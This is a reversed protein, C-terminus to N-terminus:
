PSPASVTVVPVVPADSDRKRGRIDGTEAPVDIDILTADRTGHDPIHSVEEEADTVLDTPLRVLSLCIFSIVVSGVSVFFIAKPFTAVTKIFILGYISPGLIQASRISNGNILAHSRHL